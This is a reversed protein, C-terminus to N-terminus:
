GRARSAASPMLERWINHKLAQEATPRKGPNMELLDRVYSEETKDIKGKTCLGDLQSLLYKHRGEDTKGMGIPTLIFLHTYGLSWMDIANTYYFHNDPPTTLTWVEPAVTHIPGLGTERHHTADIAKGFDCIAAQWPFKDKEGFFVLLNKPSIDRHMIGLSHIYALGETIDHFLKRHIHVDTPPLSGPPLSRPPLPCLRFFDEFAYEALPMTMYYDDLPCDFCPPSAAHNCWTTLFRVINEHRSLAEAIYIETKLSIVNRQKTSHAVKIAVPTGTSAQVGLSVRGFAGTGLIKSHTIYDRVRTHTEIPLADFNDNPIQTEDGNSLLFRNRRLSFDAASQATVDLVFDLQAPWFRLRNRRMWLVTMEGFQLTLDGELGLGSLYQVPHTLSIAKLMFAGSNRDIWILAATPPFGPASLDFVFRHTTNDVRKLFQQHHEHTSNCRILEATNNTAQQAPTNDPSLTLFPFSTSLGDDNLETTASTADAAPSPHDYPNTASGHHSTEM